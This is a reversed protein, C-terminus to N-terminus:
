PRRHERDGPTRALRRAARGRPRLQGHVGAVNVAGRCSRGAKAEHPEFYYEVEGYDNYCDIIAQEDPHIRYRYMGFNWEPPNEQFPEGDIMWEVRGGRQYHSMVSIMEEIKMYEEM